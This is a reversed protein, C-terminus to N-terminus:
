STSMKPLPANNLRHCEGFAMLVLTLDELNKVRPFIFLQWPFSLYDHNEVHNLQFYHKYPWCCLWQIDTYYWSMVATLPSPHFNYTDSTSSPSLPSCTAHYSTLLHHRFESVLANNLSISYITFYDLLFLSVLQRQPSTPSELLVTTLSRVRIYFFLYLESSLSCHLTCPISLEHLWPFVNKFIM